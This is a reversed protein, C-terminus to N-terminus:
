WGYQCAHDLANPSRQMWTRVISVHTLAWPKSSCKPVWPEFLYSSSRHRTLHKVTVSQREQKSAVRRPFVLCAFNPWVHKGANGVSAERHQFVCFHFRHTQQDQWCKSWKSKRSPAPKDYVESLHRVVLIQVRFHGAVSQM